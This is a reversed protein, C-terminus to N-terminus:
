EKGEKDLVEAKYQKLILNVFQSRNKVKPINYTKRDIMNNPDQFLDLLAISYVSVVENHDKKNQVM